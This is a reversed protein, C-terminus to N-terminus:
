SQPIKFIHISQDKAECRKAQVSTKRKDSVMVLKNKALWSIGEVNGYVVNNKSNKPFLYTQGEDVFEWGNIELEGIWIASSEQSVIAVRLGDISIGAYDVFKISKPLKLTTHHSWKDNQKEFVHVRGHGVKLSKKGEAARNGESLGLTYAKGGWNVYSLGEIGKKTEGKFILDVPNSEIFKFELDVEDIKPTYQGQKNLCTEQVILFRQQLYDFAIDEYDQGGTKKQLILKNNNIDSFDNNLKAIDPINDFVVYSYGDMSFVGSAELRSKKDCIKLLKYIKSEQVLELVPLKSKPM